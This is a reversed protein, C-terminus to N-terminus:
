RFAGHRDVHALHLAQESGVIWVEPQHRPMAVATAMAGITLLTFLITKAIGM